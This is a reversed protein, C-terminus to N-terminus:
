LNISKGLLPTSRSVKPRKPEENPPTSTDGREAAQFHDDAISWCELSDDLGDDVIGADKCKSPVVIEAEQPEVLSGDQVDVIEPQRCVAKAPRHVPPSCAEADNGVPPEDDDDRRFVDSPSFSASSPSANPQADFDDDDANRTRRTYKVKFDILKM